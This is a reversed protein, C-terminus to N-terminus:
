FFSNCMQFRLQYFYACAFSGGLDKITNHNVIIAGGCRDVLNTVNIYHVCAGQANLWPFFIHELRDLSGDYRRINPDVRLIIAALDPKKKRWKSLLSAPFQYFFALNLTLM